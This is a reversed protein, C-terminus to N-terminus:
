KGGKLYQDLEIFRQYLSEAKNSICDIEKIKIDAKQLEFKMKDTESLENKEEICERITKKYMAKKKPNYKLYKRFANINRIFLPIDREYHLERRIRTFIEGEVESDTQCLYSHEMQEIVQPIVYIVKQWHDLRGITEDEIRM